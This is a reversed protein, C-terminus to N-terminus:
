NKLNLQQQILILKKAGLRDIITLENESDLLGIPTLTYIKEDSEALTLGEFLYEKKQDISLDVEIVKLGSPCNQFTLSLEKQAIAIYVRKSRIYSYLSDVAQNNKLEKLLKIASVSLILGISAILSLSIIIEILTFNKKSKM